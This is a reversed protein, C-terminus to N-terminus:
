PEKIGWVWKPSVEKGTLPIFAYVGIGSSFSRNLATGLFVAFILNKLKQM